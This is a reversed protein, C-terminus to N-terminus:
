PWGDRPKVTPTPAAASPQPSPAPRLGPAPATTAPLELSRPAVEGDRKMVVTEQMSRGGRSIEVVFSDGPLGSLVIAGDEMTALSGNVRVEADTPKIALRATQKAPAAPAASPAAEVEPAVDPTAEGATGEGTAAEGATAEGAPGEGSRSASAMALAVGFLGAAVVLLWPWRKKPATPERATMPATAELLTHEQAALASSPEAREAEDAKARSAADKTVADDNTEDETVSPKAELARSTPPGKALTPEEPYSEELKEYLTTADPYRGDPDVTFAKAIFDDISAPLGPEVQTPPEYDGTHTAVSIAGIAEGLFPLKGVMCAYAVVAASWLDSRHDINRPSMFQEPSMYYPTGMLQGTETLDMDSERYKAIGFDLVKVFPEGDAEVLFVNAPKIDRHLVGREHAYRLARCLQRMVTLTLDRPLPGMQQIYSKLDRGVLREMVIYPEGEDTVGYDFVRVVHPSDFQALGRAEREFRTRADDDMARAAHLVKVAVESGLATNDAVWVTGMAGKGLPERLVVNGLRSGAGLPM